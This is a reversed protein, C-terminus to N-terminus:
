YEGLCCSCRGVARSHDLSTQAPSGARKAWWVYGEGGHHSSTHRVPTVKGESREAPRQIADDLLHLLEGTVQVVERMLHLGCVVGGGLLQGHLCPLPVLLEFTCRGNRQASIATPDGVLDPSVCFVPVFNPESDALPQSGLSAFGQRSEDSSM